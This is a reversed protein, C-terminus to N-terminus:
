LILAGRRIDIRFDGRAGLRAPKQGTKACLACVPTKIRCRQIECKEVACHMTLFLLNGYMTFICSKRSVQSIQPQPLGTCVVDDDFFIKEVFFRCAQVFLGEANPVDGFRLATGV